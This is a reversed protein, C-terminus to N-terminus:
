KELYQKLDNLSQEWGEEHPKVAHENKFDEQLVHLSSTADDCSFSITLLYEGKHETGDPLDWIWSYVLKEGEKVEKYTGYITLDNDFKYAVKGGERLDNEVSVLQKNMPKWWQKLAEEETWARYLDEKSASFKKQVNVQQAGTAM